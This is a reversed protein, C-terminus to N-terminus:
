EKKQLPKKKKKKEITMRAARPAIAGIFSCAGASITPCNGLELNPFEAAFSNEPLCLKQLMNSQQSLLLRAILVKEHSSKFSSKIWRAPLQKVKLHLFKCNKRLIERIRKAGLNLSDYATLINVTGAM